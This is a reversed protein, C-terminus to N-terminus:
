IKKCLQCLKLMLTWWILNCGILNVTKNKLGWQKLGAKEKEEGEFRNLATKDIICNKFWNGSIPLSLQYITLLEIRLVQWYQKATIGVHPIRCMIFSGLHIYHILQTPQITISHVVNWHSPITCSAITKLEQSSLICAFLVRHNHMDMPEHINM